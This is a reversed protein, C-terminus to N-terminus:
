IGSCLWDGSWPADMVTVSAGRAAAGSAAGAGDKAGAGVPNAATTPEPSGRVTPESNTPADSSNRSTEPTVPAYALAWCAVISTVLALSRLPTARRVVSWAV